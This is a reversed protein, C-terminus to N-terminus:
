SRPKPPPKLAPGVAPKAITEQRVYFTVSASEQLKTGRDDLVEGSVTHTGRSLDKLDFQFSNRPFGTVQRGDLMLVLQHGPQLAPELQIGVPVQGATNVFTEDNRPRSIALNRYSYGTNVPSAPSMVSSYTPAPSGPSKNSSSIEVKTAGPIERDSLHVVGKDDVWKWVTQSAFAPLALLGILLISTRM